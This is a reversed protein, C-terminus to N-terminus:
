KKVLHAESRGIKQLNQVNFLEMARPETKAYNTHNLQTREGRTAVGPALTPGLNILGKM